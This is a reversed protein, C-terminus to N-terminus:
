TSFGLTSIYFSKSSSLLQLLTALYLTLYLHLNIEYIDAIFWKLNLVLLILFM